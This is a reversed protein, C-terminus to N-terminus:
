PALKFTMQVKVGPTAVPAGDVFRPAYRWSQIAALAPDGFSDSGETQLLKPDRVFGDADITFELLATGELGKADAPYVPNQRYLPMQGSEDTWPQLAGVAVCHETARAPEGLQQYANVLLAHAAMALSNQPAGAAQFAALVQTLYPEAIKPKANVLYYKGLWFSAIVFRADSTAVQKHYQEYAADLFPKSQEVNGDRMLHIGAELNLHALLLDDSKVRARAINLAADYYVHQQKPEWTGSANGRSMLPDILEKADKGYLQRYQEIAKDLIPIATKIQNMKILLQSYNLALAATNKHNEGYVEIGLRYAQEAYPLAEESKDQAILEEYKHYAAVFGSKSDSTAPASSPAAPSTDTTTATPTDTATATPADTADASPAPTASDTPADAAYAHCCAVMAFVPLWARIM